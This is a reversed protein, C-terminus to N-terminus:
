PLPVEGLFTYGLRLVGAIVDNSMQEPSLSHTSFTENVRGRNERVGNGIKM